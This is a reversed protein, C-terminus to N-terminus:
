KEDEYILMFNESYGIIKRHKNEEVYKDDLIKQQDFEQKELNLVTNQITNLLM